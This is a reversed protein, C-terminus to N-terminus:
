FYDAIEGEEEAQVWTGGRGESSVLPPLQTQYPLTLMKKKKNDLKLDFLVTWRTKDEYFSSIITSKLINQECFEKCEIM